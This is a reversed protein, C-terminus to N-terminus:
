SELGEHTFSTTFAIDQRMSHWVSCYKDHSMEIARAIQADSANTGLTFRLEISVFRRPEADARHGTLEAGLSTVKFRGKTLIHVLDIAMCSALASALAVVPTPGSENRGDLVWQHSGDRAVFKLGNEWELDVFIPPKVESM